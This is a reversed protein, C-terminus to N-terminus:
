STRLAEELTTRGGLAKGVADRRMTIMGEAVAIEQIEASNGRKM